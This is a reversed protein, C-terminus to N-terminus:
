CVRRPIQLCTQIRGIVQEQPSSVVVRVGRRCSVAPLEGFVARLLEIRVRLLFDVMELEPKGFPHPPDSQGIQEDFHRYATLDPTRAVRQHFLGSLTGATEAPIADTKHRLSTKM